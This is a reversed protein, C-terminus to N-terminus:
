EMPAFSTVNSYTSQGDASQSHTVGGIIAKGTVQPILEGFSLKTNLGFKELFEKLRYVADETFYFTAPLVKKRWDLGSLLEQDVDEKPEQPVLQFEVFDTKKKDSQGFSHGKVLFVYTGVPLPKPREAQEAPKALLDKFGAM